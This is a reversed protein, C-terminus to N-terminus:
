SYIPLGAESVIWAYLLLGVQAGGCLIFAWVTIKGADLLPYLAEYAYSGLPDYLLLDVFFYYATFAIAPLFVSPWLEWRSVWCAALYLGLLLVPGTWTFRALAVKSNRVDAPSYHEPDVGKEVYTALEEVVRRGQQRSWQYHAALPLLSAALLGYLVLTRGWPRGLWRVLAALSGGVGACVGTVVLAAVALFWM